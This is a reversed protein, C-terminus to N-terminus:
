PVIKIQFLKQKLPEKEWSRKYIMKLITTGTDLAKFTFVDKGSSGSLLSSSTSASKQLPTVSHSILEIINSDFVPIWEYGTTPNSQLVITFQEDKKATIKDSNDSTIDKVLATNNTANM